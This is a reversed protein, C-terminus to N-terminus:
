RFLVLPHAVSQCRVSKKDESTAVVAGSDRERTQAFPNYEGGDSIGSRTQLLEAQLGLAQAELDVADVVDVDGPIAFIQRVSRGTWLSLATLLVRPSQGWQMIATPATRRSTTTASTPPPPPPAVARVEPVDWASKSYADITRKQVFAATVHAGNHYPVNGEVLITNWSGDVALLNTPFEPKATQEHLV